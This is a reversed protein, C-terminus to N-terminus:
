FNYTYWEDCITCIEPLNNNTHSSFLKEGNDWVKAIDDTLLNGYSLDDKQNISHSPCAFVRGGIDIVMDRKVHWCEHRKLPSLDAVRKQSIYGSHDNFKQIIFSTGQDKWYRYFDMLHEENENMRVAQVHFHHDFSNKGWKAFAMAEEFGGGRLQEYLSPDISDLSLILDLCDPDFAILQSQATETWGIGSTEILFRAASHRRAIDLIQDLQPHLSLEGWLSLSVVPDEVFSCVKDLMVAFDDPALFQTASLHGPFAKPFPCYSCSQPCRSSLQFAFFAPLSRYSRRQEEVVRCLEEPSMDSHLPLRECININRQRDKFLELRLMRLDRPSVATEIDYANINIRLTEFIGDRRLAIARGDQKLPAIINRTLICGTIGAPYGEAFVYDSLYQRHLSLIERNAALNMFPADGWFHFLGSLTKDAVLIEEFVSFLKDMCDSSSFAIRREEIKLSGDALVDTYESLSAFDDPLLVYLSNTVMEPEQSILRAFDVLERGVGRPTALLLNAVPALKITYSDNEM